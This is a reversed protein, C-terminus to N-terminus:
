RIGRMISKITVKTELEMDMTTEVDVRPCKTFELNPVPGWRVLKM